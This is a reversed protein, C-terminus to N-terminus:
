TFEDQPNAQGVAGGIVSVRSRDAPTMGFRGLLPLLRREVDAALAVQPVARIMRGGKENFTEYCHSKETKWIERLEDQYREWQGWLTCLMKFAGLDDETTIRMTPLTAMFNKFAAVQYGDFEPPPEVPFAFPKAPEDRIPTPSKALTGRERKVQTPLRKISRGKEVSM